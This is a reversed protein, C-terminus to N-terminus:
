LSEEISVAIAQKCEKRLHKHFNNKNILLKGDYDVNFNKKKKKIRQKPIKKNLDELLVKKFKM